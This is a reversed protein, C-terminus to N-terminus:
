SKKVSGGSDVDLEKVVATGKYKIGGGSNAKANLEKNVGVQIGGGSTAKANCVQTTLDYGKFLAGSSVDITLNTAEGTLKISSGSNQEATFNQLQVTGSLTAGSVIKVTLREAILKETFNIDAGSSGDLKELVEFSVYAKLKRKNTSVWNMDDSAYYIKLTGDVVETKFNALYKEESASVAIEEEAGKTLYLDVGNSVSISTFSATLNRKQANADVIQKQQAFTTISLFAILLLFLKKM